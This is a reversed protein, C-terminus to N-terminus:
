WPRAKGTSAASKVAAAPREVPQYGFIENSDEYGNDGKRIRVKVRMPIGHLEESDNVKQKGVAQCIEALRQVAIEVAKQNPNDLNLRDWILRGSHDGEIIRFTLQLYSGNGSKTPREESDTIEAVYVGAPILDFAREPVDITAANFDLKM